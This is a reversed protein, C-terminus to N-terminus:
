EEMESHDPTFINSDTAPEELSIPLSKKSPFLSKARSYLAQLNKIAGEYNAEYIIEALRSFQENDLNDVTVEGEDSVFELIKPLNNEIAKIIGTVLTLDTTPDKKVVSGEPEDEPMISALIESILNTATIQNGMSLPYITVEKLERIGIELKRIKPNLIAM